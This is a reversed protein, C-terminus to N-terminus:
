SNCYCLRTICCYDIGMRWCIVVASSESRSFIHCYMTYTSFHAPHLHLGKSGARKPQKGQFDFSCCCYLYMTITYYQALYLYTEFFLSFFFEFSTNPWVNQFRFIYLRFNPFPTIFQSGMCIMIYINWVQGMDEYGEKGEMKAKIKLILSIPQPSEFSWALIPFCIGAPSRGMRWRRNLSILLLLTRVLFYASRLLEGFTSRLLLLLLSLSAGTLFQLLLLLLLLPNLLMFVRPFLISTLRCSSGASWWKIHGVDPEGLKLPYKCCSKLFLPVHAVNM